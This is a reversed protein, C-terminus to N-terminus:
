FTLYFPLSYEEFEKLLNKGYIIRSFAESSLKAGMLANHPKPESSLGVYKLIEDLSFGLSSVRGGNKM